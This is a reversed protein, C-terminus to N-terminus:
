VTKDFGSGAMVSAQRLSCFDELYGEPFAATVPSLAKENIGDMARTPTM